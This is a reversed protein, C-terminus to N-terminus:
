KVREVEIEFCDINGKVPPKMKRLKLKLRYIDFSNIITDAMQNALTEMLNFKNQTIINEVAAYIEAYNVTDTVSDTQAALAADIEYECDVEYRGGIEKEADFVGHYAYFSMRKLRITAQQTNDTM